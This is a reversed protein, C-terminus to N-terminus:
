YVNRLLIKFCNKRRASEINTYPLFYSRILIFIALPASIGIDFHNHTNNHSYRAAAKKLNQKEKLSRILAAKRVVIAFSHVTFVYIPNFHKLAIFVFDIKQKM